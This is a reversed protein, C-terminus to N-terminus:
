IPRQGLSPHGSCRFSTRSMDAGGSGVDEGANKRKADGAGQAEV